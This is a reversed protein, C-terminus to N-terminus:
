TRAFGVCWHLSITLAWFSMFSRSLSPAPTTLRIPFATSRLIQWRPKKWARCQTCDRKVLAYNSQWFASREVPETLVAVLTDDLGTGWHNTNGYPNVKWLNVLEAYVGKGIMSSSVQSVGQPSSLLTLDPTEQLNVKKFVAEGSFRPGALIVLGPTHPALFGDPAEVFNLVANRRPDGLRATLARVEKNLGDLIATATGKSGDLYALKINPASLNAYPGIALTMLGTPHESKMEFKTIDGNTTKQAIKMNGVVSNLGPVDLFAVQHFPKHGWAKQISSQNNKAFVPYGFSQARIMTFDPHLTEKVGPLGTQSLDELYGRYHVVIERRSMGKLLPRALTVEVQNLELHNFGEVPVLRITAKLRKGGPGVVHDVTLGPNLLLSVTRLVTNGNNRFSVQYAGVMQGDRAEEAFHFKAVLTANLLEIDSEARASATGLLLLLAGVLLRMINGVIM